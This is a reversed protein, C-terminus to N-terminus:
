DDRKRKRFSNHQTASKWGGGVDIPFHYVKRLVEQSQKDLNQYVIRWPLNHPKCTVLRMKQSKFTCRKTLPRITPLNVRYGDNRFEILEVKKPM